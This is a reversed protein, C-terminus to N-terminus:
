VYVYTSAILTADDIYAAVVTVYTCGPRHRALRWYTIWTAGGSMTIWTAGGSMTIWTAGGSM